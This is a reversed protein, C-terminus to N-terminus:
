IEKKQALFRFVKYEAAGATYLVKRVTEYEIKKDALIALIGEFPIPQGDEARVNSNARIAESRQKAAVLADFLPVIRLGNEDLDQTQFEYHPQATGLQGENPIFDVVRKGDFTIGETTVIVQLSDKADEQTMSIPLQMGPLATLNNQSTQYSKLLFVLIIVLVDLMSTLQLEFSKNIVKRGRRNRISRGRRM